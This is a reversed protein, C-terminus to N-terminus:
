ARRPGPRGDEIVFSALTEIGSDPDTVDDLGRLDARAGRSDIEVRVYGRHDTNGFQIHPNDRQIAERMTETM